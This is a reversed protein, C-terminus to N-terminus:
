IIGDITAQSPTKFHGWETSASTSPLSANLISEYDANAVSKPAHSRLKLKAFELITELDDQSHSYAQM